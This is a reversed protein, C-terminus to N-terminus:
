LVALGVIVLLVLVLLCGVNATREGTGPRGLFGRSMWYGCHPCARAHESVTEGCDPCTLLAV